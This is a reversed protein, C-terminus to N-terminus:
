FGEEPCAGPRVQTLFLEVRTGREVMRGPEFSPVQKWVYANTRDYVTDDDHILGIELDSATLLFQAEDFTMCLLDPLEVMQSTRETVVFELVSGMPVEYGEAIDQETIKKGEHYLFLITNEAQKNDFVRERIRTRINKRNLNKSYINYDYSSEKLLPLRVLDPQQKTITVYVKRYEKVYQGAKPVQSLIVGPPQGEMWISDNVVLTFHHRKAVQRARELKMGVFDTLELAEGHRTYCRLWWNTMLFLFLVTGVMGAFNKLFLGSTLFLRLEQAWRKMGARLAEARPRLWESIKSRLDQM